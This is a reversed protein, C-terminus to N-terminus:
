LTKRSSLQRNTIVRSVEIVTLLVGAVVLGVYYGFDGIMRIYKHNGHKLPDTKFLSHIDAYYDSLISLPSNIPRQTVLPQIDLQVGITSIAIV